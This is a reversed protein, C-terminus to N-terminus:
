EGPARKWQPLQRTLPLKEFEGAHNLIVNDITIKALILGGPLQDGVRYSKAPAGQVSILASSLREPVAQMIGLLRLDFSTIPLDAPAQGFLHATSLSTLPVAIKKASVVSMSSSPVRKILHADTYWTFPVSILIIMLTISLIGLLVWSSRRGWETSWLPSFIEDLM